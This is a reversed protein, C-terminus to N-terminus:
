RLRERLRLLMLWRCIDLTETAGAALQELLSKSSFGHAREFHGIQDDLDRLEDASPSRRTATMLADLVQAQRASSMTKLTAIRIRM